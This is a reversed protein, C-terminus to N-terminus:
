RRIDQKVAELVESLRDIQGSVISNFKAPSPMGAGSALSREVLNEFDSFHKITSQLAAVHDDPLSPNSTRISILITRLASYREPLITWAGVRHLRKIENMMALAAAFDTLTHSRIIAERAKNAAEEARQAAAKSRFIGYIAVGFGFIAVLLEAINALDSVSVKSQFSM